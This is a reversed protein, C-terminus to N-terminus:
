TLQRRSARSSKSKLGAFLELLFILRDQPVCNATDVSNKPTLERLAYSVYPLATPAEAESGPQTFVGVDFKRTSLKDRNGRIVFSGSQCDGDFSSFLSFLESCERSTCTKVCGQILVKTDLTVAVRHGENDSTRCLQDSPLGRKPAISAGCGQIRNPGHLVRVMFCGNAEATLSRPPPGM